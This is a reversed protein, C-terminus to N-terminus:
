KTGYTQAENFKIVPEKFRLDIYKINVLDNRAQSILHALINIKDRINNTDLKIELEKVPAQAQARPYAPLLFPFILSFSANNLAAVDIKKINYNRLFRNFRLEKIINLAATLEKINYRTGARPGFIKTELGLIVPLDQPQLGQTATFIVGEKDVFFYRYLKIAAVPSRKVFDVFIRDPLVKVLRIKYFNPYHQTIYESESRVNVSFINRGKLYSLDAVREEKFVIEKIKFYDCTRLFKACSGYIFLVGALIVAAFIVLKVPFNFRTKRM